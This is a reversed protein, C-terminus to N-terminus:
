LICYSDLRKKVKKLKNKTINHSSMVVLYTYIEPQGSRLYFISPNAVRILLPIYRRKSRNSM